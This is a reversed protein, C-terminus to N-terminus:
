WLRCAAKPYLGDWSTMAQLMPGEQAISGDAHLYRRTEVPVVVTALPAVDYRTLFSPRSGTPFVIGAGRDHM